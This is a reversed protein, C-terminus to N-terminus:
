IAAKLNRLSNFDKGLFCGGLSIWPRFSDLSEPDSILGLFRYKKCRGLHHLHAALKPEWQHIRLHPLNEVFLILLSWYNLLTNANM